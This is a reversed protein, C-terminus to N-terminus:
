NRPLPPALYHGPPYASQPTPRIVPPPPAQDTIVEVPVEEHPPDPKPDPKPTPPPPTVPGPAPPPSVPEPGTSPISSGHAFLVFCVCFGLAFTKLDSYAVALLEALKDM